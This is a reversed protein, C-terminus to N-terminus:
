LSIGFQKKLLRFDEFDKKDQDTIEEGKIMEFRKIFDPPSIKPLSFESHDKGFLKKLKEINNKNEIDMVM